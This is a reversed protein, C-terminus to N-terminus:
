NDILIEYIYTLDSGDQHALIQHSCPDKADKTFLEHAIMEPSFDNLDNINDVNFEAM